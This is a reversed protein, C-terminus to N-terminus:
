GQLAASPALRGGRVRDLVFPAITTDGSPKISFAGLPSSRMRLSFFDGIVTSRDDAKAGAAAIAALVASMAEYGFVAETAPAHGYRARFARVFARAPANLASPLFGPQSVYVRSALPSSGGAGALLALPSSGFLYASPDVRAAAAFVRAATSPSVGTYFVAGAGRPTAAVHISAPLDARLAYGFARSYESSDGAIYVSRVGLRKLEAADARAEARDTPVVRAFTRGYTSLSEYYRQPAGPIAPTSETLELATDTPSVQLLDEANTIGASDASAGPILEGLYAIASSDQIAARANDSPKLATLERLRLHFHREAHPALQAFALREADLVDALAPDSAVRGPASLYITLTSGRARVTKPASAGAAGCGALLLAAGAAALARRPALIEM